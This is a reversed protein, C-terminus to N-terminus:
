QYKAQGGYLENRLRTLSTRAQQASARVILTSVIYSRSLTTSFNRAKFNVAM